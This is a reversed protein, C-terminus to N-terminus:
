EASIKFAVDSCDGEVCCETSLFEVLGQMVTYNARCILTTSHREQKILGAFVLTKLHHSLTSPAIALREQLAGVAMGREGARVLARYVELRTINGLAELRMAAQDLEM